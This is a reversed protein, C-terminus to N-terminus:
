SSQGYAFVNCDLRPIRYKDIPSLFEQNSVQFAFSCENSQLEFLSNEDFTSPAGYPYCFSVKKNGTIKNIVSLSESIEYHLQRLPLSSLVPHSCSHAGIEMGAQHLDYVEDTSM